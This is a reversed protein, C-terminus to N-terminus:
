KDRRAWLALIIVIAKLVLSYTYPINNMNVAVTIIQIILVGFITGIVNPRGGNMPTGGVAVAAIADLEMLKGIANADAASLRATEIIGAFGALTASIMYISITVMFTNIGTLRSAKYNDGMAQVYRGFSMKNAIFYVSASVIIMIFVQIPVSGGFKYTGLFSFAPENFNLLQSDNIVQAIGRIGIMMPLTVIIPQIKFRAIIFGIFVGCVASILLGLIVAPVVGFGLSKATVISSIAMVSGVSIDIGGSAIVLTMGLATLLITTMQILINWMTNVNAFNPTFIANVAILLVLLIPTAYKNLLLKWDRDQNVNVSSKKTITKM